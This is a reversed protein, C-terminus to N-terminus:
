DNKRMILNGKVMVMFFMFIQFKLELVVVRCDLTFGGLVGGVGSMFFLLLALITITIFPVDVLFYIDIDVTRVRDEKFDYFIIM